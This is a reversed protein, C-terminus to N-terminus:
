SEDFAEEVFAVTFTRVPPPSHRALLAVVLSSDIGGSLLAGVPVDATMRAAVSDSLAKEVHDEMDVISGFPPQRRADDIAGDATWYAEQGPLMGPPTTADVTVTTGPALKALGRYICDPAPVCSLRLFQSVAARDVDPRFGPLAHFAKLESAFAFHGAVWGYYLPKEGFRDRALHLRRTRRDWAAFAFMGEALELSKELGWYELGTVLVETDSSGGFTEGAGVLRARLEAANYLEGNYSLVWRGGQSHMPQHGQAGLGVVELRQHGLAIGAASDVWSGADDPGRHVLTRAMATARENLQEGTSACRPDFIGAIGCVLHESLRGHRCRCPEEATLETESLQCFPVGRGM